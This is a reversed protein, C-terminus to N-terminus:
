GDPRSRELSFIEQILKLFPTNAFPRPYAKVILQGGDLRQLEFGLDQLYNIKEECPSEGLVLPEGVLLPISHETNKKISKQINKVIEVFLTQHNVFYYRKGIFVLTIRPHIKIWHNEEQAPPNNNRQYQGSRMGNGTNTPPRNNVPIFPSNPLPASNTQGKGNLKHVISKVLAYVIDAKLFRVSTKNPHANVDVENPPITIFLAFHGVGSAGWISDLNKTVIAYLVKNEVFRDNIFIFNYRGFSSGAFHSSIFLQAKYGSYESSVSFVKSDTKTAFLQEIRKIKQENSVAPYFSSERGDWKISFTVLPNNIVFSYLIKELAKKEARKSKVFKLRAPTNFFLDKIFLSTGPKGSNHPAHDMERGGHIVYKGGKLSQPTSLCHVRAVGAISALAEGRFGYSSLHYIDNFTKIKSTAHRCFALPLQDYEIGIGDDEISMLELGNDIIEINIRKAKADISNELVEKLLSAPRRM